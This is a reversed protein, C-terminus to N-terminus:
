TYYKDRPNEMCLQECMADLKNLFNNGCEFINFCSPEKFVPDDMVTPEENYAQNNAYKVQKRKQPRM